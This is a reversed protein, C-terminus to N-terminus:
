TDAEGPLTVNGSSSSLVVLADLATVMLLEPLETDIEDMVTLLLKVSVLLQPDESAALAEHVTLTANAGVVVPAKVPVRVM